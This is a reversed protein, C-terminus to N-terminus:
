DWWAGDCELRIKHYLYKAKQQYLEHPHEIMWKKECENKCFRDVNRTNVYVDCNYKFDPTTGMEYNGDDLKTYTLNGDYHFLDVKGLYIDILKMCIKMNRVANEWGVFRKQKEHYKCMENIKAKELEYLYSEDWPYTKMVVKHLEKFNKNFFHYEVWGRFERFKEKFSGIKKIDKLFSSAAVVKM